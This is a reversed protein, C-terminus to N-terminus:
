GEEKKLEGNPSKEIWARAYSPTRKGRYSGAEVLGTEKPCRRCELLLMFGNQKHEWGSEISTRVSICPATGIRVWSHRGFFCLLRAIM